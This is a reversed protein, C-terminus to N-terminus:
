RGRVALEKAEEALALWDDAPQHVQAWDKMPRGRGSPDFAQARGAEILEQARERGVKVVLEGDFAGGFRRRGVRLTPMGMMKTESVDGDEALLEEVVERYPDMAARYERRPGVADLSPSKRPTRTTGGTM